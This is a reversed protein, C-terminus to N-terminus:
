CKWKVWMRRRHACSKHCALSARLTVEDLQEQLEKHKLAEKELRQIQEQLQQVEEEAKSGSKRRNECEQAQQQVFSLDAKLKKM